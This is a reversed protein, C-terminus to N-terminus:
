TWRGIFVHQRHWDLYKPHPPDAWSPLQITDLM